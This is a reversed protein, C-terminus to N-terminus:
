PIGKQEFHLLTVIDRLATAFIEDLISDDVSYPGGYVGDGFIQRTSNAGILGLAKPPQKEGSPVESVRTFPFAEIWAAHYSKLGHKAAVETVHDANWWSYWGIQIGPLGDIIEALRARVPDNGGHGNLIVLRRFGQRYISRVIDEAVDLLTNIRLSITGPYALFYPSAGFPLPPAVPVGTQQSAADALAQPIKVDTSLSLYGHQECAGLVLLLRNDTKLYNEVDFWNLDELRMSFLLSNRLHPYERHTKYQEQSNIDHNYMKEAILQIGIERYPMNADM